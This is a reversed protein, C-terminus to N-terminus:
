VLKMLAHLGLRAGHLGWVVIVVALALFALGALVMLGDRRAVGLSLMCVTLAPVLNAFPLPLVLVIAMATCAVGALAAGTRGTLFTLRPHAVREVKEIWPLIRKFLKHLKERDISQRALKEPLWLDKRGVIMQPAVLLLPLALVMSVGPPLPLLVPLTLVFVVPALGGSDEVHEIIDHLSVREARAKLLPRLNAALSPTSRQPQNM